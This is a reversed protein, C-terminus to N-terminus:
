KKVKVKMGLSHQMKGLVGAGKLSYVLIGAIISGVVTSILFPVVYVFFGIEAASKGMFLIAIPYACMGGLIGTGVIEGILTPLIKRSYKYILGCVLAGIMSGPFALLTGLGMLNRLLSAAFACGVGYGPGLLIASLVNVLHQVPSCKSGFLPFSILSGAVACAIFLGAVAIKATTSKRNM